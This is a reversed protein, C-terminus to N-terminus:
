TDEEQTDLFDQIAQLLKSPDYSVHRKGKRISPHVTVSIKLQASNDDGFSMLELRVKNRM